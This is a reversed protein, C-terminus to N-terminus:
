SPQLARRQACPPGVLEGEETEDATGRIEDLAVEHAEAAPGNSGHELAIDHTSAPVPM